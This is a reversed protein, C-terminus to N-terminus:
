EGLCLEFQGGVPLGKTDFARSSGPPSTSAEFQDACLDEAHVTLKICWPSNMYLVLFM